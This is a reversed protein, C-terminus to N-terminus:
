PAAIERSGVDCYEDSGMVYYNLFSVVFSTEAYHARQAPQLQWDIAARVRVGSAYTSVSRLGSLTADFRQHPTEEPLYADFYGSLSCTHNTPGQDIQYTQVPARVMQHKLAAGAKTTSHRYVTFETAAVIDDLWGACNPIVCGAYCDSDTQLTAQWSSIPVVVKGGPTALEMTYRVPYDNVLPRFEHFGLALEPVLPSEVHALAVLQSTLSHEPGLPSDAHALAFLHWAILEPQQMPGSDAAEATVLVAAVSIPEALPGVDEAICDTYDIPADGFEAGPPTFAGTYRAVGKTIRIDDMYGTFPSSASPTAGFVPNLANDPILDLGSLTNTGQSAGDAFLEIQNGNRVFAVHVWTNLSLTGASTIQRNSGSQTYVSAALKDSVIWIRWIAYSSIGVHMGLFQQSGSSVTPYAWLEITWNGTSLQVDAHNTVSLFDGSGDFHASAGGWKSQDTEIHANGNATVTKPTPANDTFTTSGDSGNCHLLLAVQSYYLDGSM